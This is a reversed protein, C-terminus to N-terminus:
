QERGARSYIAIVTGAEAGTAMAPCFLVCILCCLEHVPPKQGSFLRDRDGAPGIMQEAVFSGRRIGGAAV